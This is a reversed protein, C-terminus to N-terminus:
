HWLSYLRDFEHEQFGKLYKRCQEIVAGHQALNWPPVASPTSQLLLTEEKVPHKVSIVSSWLAPYSIKGSTVRRGGYKVDDALPHGSFALQARIQHTRGTVPVAFVLTYKGFIGATDYILVSKKGRATDETVLNKKEEKYLTHVLVGTRKQFSGEALAFYGKRFRGARLEGSLRSAGKSTKAFVMTGGVNRDLRHVLGVFANGSKQYKVCLYEKLMSLMDSGAPESGDAQSLIGPPKIVSILHNDEYLIEPKLMMRGIEMGRLFRM